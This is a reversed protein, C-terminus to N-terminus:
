KSKTSGNNDGPYWLQHKEEEERCGPATGGEIWCYWKCLINQQAKVLFVPYNRKTHKEDNSKNQTKLKYLSKNLLWELLKSHLTYTFKVHKM